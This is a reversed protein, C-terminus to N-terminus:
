RKEKGADIAALLSRVAVFDEETLGRRRVMLCLREAPDSPDYSEINRAVREASARSTALNASLVLDALDIGLLKAVRGLTAARPAAIGGTEVKSAWEQSMGLRDSLEEQTWGKDLRAARILEGVTAGDSGM